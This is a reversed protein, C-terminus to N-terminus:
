NNFNELNSVTFIEPYIDINVEASELKGRTNQKNRLDTVIVLHALQVGNIEKYESFQLQRDAIGKKNYHIIELVHGSDNCWLEAQQHKKDELPSLLLHHGGEEKGKYEASYQSSYQMRALDDIAFDTGLFADSRNSNLVRRAPPYEPLFLHLNDQGQILLSIGKLRAPEQMRVLRSHDGLQWIEMKRTATRGKSDTVELSLRMHASDIKNQQDIKQLWEAGTEAFVIAAFFYLM